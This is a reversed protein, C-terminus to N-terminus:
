ESHPLTWRCGGGFGEREVVAGIDRRARQLTKDSYGYAKAEAHIDKVRCPGDALINRLWSAAEQKESVCVYTPSEICPSDIPLGAADCVDKITKGVFRKKYVECFWIDHDLDGVTIYKGYKETRGHADDYTLGAINLIDPSCDMLLTKHSLKQIHISGSIKKSSDSEIKNMSYVRIANM